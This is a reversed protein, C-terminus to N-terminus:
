QQQQHDLSVTFRAGAKGKCPQHIGRYGVPKAKRGNKGAGIKEHTGNFIFEEPHELYRQGCAGCKPGELHGNQTRLRDIEADLHANSLLLFFDDCDHNGVMHRCVLRKGDEWNAPAERTNWLLQLWRPIKTAPPRTTGRALPSPRAKQMPRKGDSRHMAASSARISMTLRQAMIGVILIAVATSISKGTVEPNKQELSLKPVSKVM